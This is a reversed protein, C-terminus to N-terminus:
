RKLLALLARKIKLYQLLLNSADKQKCIPFICDIGQKDFMKWFRRAYKTHKPSQELSPNEPLLREYSSEVDEKELSDYLSQGKASHILIASCGKNDNMEPHATQIGWFDGLTIDSGSKGSRAPCAHCSPRLYLDKLFGRMFPNESPPLLLTEEGVRIRFAYQAWGRSKDRFSIDTIAGKARMGDLYRQWVVSSPVGHCVVDITLLNDYEKRLYRKLGAIQCPTGSFLVKRGQKLQEKAEKYTNGITSQVYKSGRFDALEDINEASAHIVNWRKDFKAGFIIGGERIITETLLTFIGGSSSEQRITDDTSKSAYVKLPRRSTGQHIVPCAQECLGCETCLTLDTVPYLFGDADAQMTIAKHACVSVCAHCGCCDKKDKLEIM